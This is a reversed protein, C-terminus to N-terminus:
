GAKKMGEHRIVSACWKESDFGRSSGDHKMISEAKHPLGKYCLYVRFNVMEVKHGNEVAGKWCSEVQSM